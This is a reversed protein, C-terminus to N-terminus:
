REEQANWIVDRLRMHQAPSLSFVVSFDDVMQLTVTALLGSRRAQALLKRLSAWEGGAAATELHKELEDVLQTRTFPVHGTEASARGNLIDLLQEAPLQRLSKILAKEAANFARPAKPASPAAVIAPRQGPPAVGFRRAEPRTVCDRCLGRATDDGTPHAATGAILKCGCLRCDPWAASSAPAVRLPAGSVVASGVHM